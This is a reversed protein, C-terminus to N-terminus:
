IENLSHKRPFGNLHSVGDFTSTGRGLEDLIVLSRSSATHLIDSTESMEVMFTSRGKALDDSAGMRTLISDHLGMRVSKAPVHSGIQAMLVVLAVMRVFSSKGGMNPGTIVKSRPRGYGMTVSNPVFPTHLVSEIMPHRGEVIELSDDETFMPKVYNSDLAVRGLSSLCDAVALKNVTDRLMGYCNNSIDLLFEKYAKQSEAFHVFRMTSIVQGSFHHYVCNFGFACKKLEEALEVEATQLLVAADVLGPFNDPETWMLEKKGEVAQEIRISDILGKIPIRLKPLSYIVDNLVHSEFGVDKPTEFGEFADGIKRFALLITALEKPTCQGYQIRCLGRALDPLGKLTRRLMELKESDSDRIERVADVREQLANRDVLPRGIWSKLLRAGFKTQTKDLVELLSGKTTGDTTNKYIELNILTNAALLMHTRTTFESFFKTELLADAIGFNSLYKIVQALAIVVRQPFATVEAMLKGSKFSESAVAAHKKDTYFKSVASFADTYPLVEKIHEVRIRHDTTTDGTFYQLMKTTAESVGREPLLLETPRAHVLRTELEIRMLSDEFDDWVVDGTSPCIIIISIDVDGPSNKKPEEILCMFPPPSYFESDDEAMMDDVYTAATYLCTLKRDFPANRNDSVKKLAATEVQNVVGVKYGRALLRYIHIHTDKADDGFFKYKYGVEIMLLTGQNDELNYRVQLELPTYAEGSPGIKPPLKKGASGKQKARRKGVASGSHSFASMLEEFASDPDTRSDEDISKGKDEIRMRISETEEEALQTHSTDSESPRPPKFLSDDALLKKKFAEHRKAKEAEQTHSSAPQSVLTSQTYPTANGSKKTKQRTSPGPQSQSSRVVKIKKIPPEETALVQLDNDDADSTLDIPSAPRERKKSSKTPSPSFFSSLITQSNQKPAM